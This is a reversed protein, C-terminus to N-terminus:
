ISPVAATEGCLRKAEDSHLYRLLAITLTVTFTAGIFLGIMGAFEKIGALLHRGINPDLWGYLSYEDITMLANWSLLMIFTLIEPVIGILTLHVGAVWCCLVGLRRAWRRKALLGFGSFLFVPAAVFSPAMFIGAGVGAAFDDHVIVNRVMWGAGACLICGIGVSMWAYKRLRRTPDVPVIPGALEPPEM